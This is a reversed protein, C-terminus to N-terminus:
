KKVTNDDQPRLIGGINHVVGNTAEVDLKIVNVTNTMEDTIVINGEDNKVFSIYAGQLSQLRYVEKDKGMVSGDLVAGTIVGEVIHYNIINRIKKIRENATLGELDNDIFSNIDADYPAFITVNDMTNIEEFMNAMNVMKLFSNYEPNTELVESLSLKEGFEVNRDIIDSDDMIVPNSKPDGKCNILLLGMLTILLTKKM